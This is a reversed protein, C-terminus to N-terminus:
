GSFVVNGPDTQLRKLVAACVDRPSKDSTDITLDYYEPSFFEFPYLTKMKEMWDAERKLLKKKQVEVTSGERYAARKLRADESATLLVRLVQAVPQRIKGYVRADIVVHDPTTLLRELRDDIDGSIDFNRKDIEDLSKLNHRHLYERLYESISFIPWNLAKQLDWFLTTKGTCRRGCLIIKTIDM